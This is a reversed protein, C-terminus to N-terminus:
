AAAYGVTGKIELFEDLGFEIFPQVYVEGSLTRDDAGGLMVVIADPVDACKLLYAREVTVAFTGATATDTEVVIHVRRGDYRGLFAVTDDPGLTTHQVKSGM